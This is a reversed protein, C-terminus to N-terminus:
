TLQLAGGLLARLFIGRAGNVDRDVIKGKKRCRFTKKGGLKEDIWGCSSCTKSTYSESPNIMVKGKKDCMSKLTERFKGHAWSMMGRVTKTRIKRCGRKSMLHANFIPIM